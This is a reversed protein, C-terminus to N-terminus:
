LPAGKTTCRAPLGTSGSGAHTAHQASRSSQTDSCIWQRIGPCDRTMDVRVAVNAHASRDRKLRENISRSTLIEPPDPKLRLIDKSSARALLHVLDTGFEVADPAFRPQSDRGAALDLLIETVVPRGGEIEGM